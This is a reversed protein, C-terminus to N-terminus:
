ERGEQLSVTMNELSSGLHSELSLGEVDKLTWSDICFSDNPDKHTLVTSLFFFLNAYGFIVKRKCNRRMLLTKRLYRGRLM